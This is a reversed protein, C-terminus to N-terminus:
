KKSSMLASKSYVEACAGAGVGFGLANLPPTPARGERRWQLEQSHFAQAPFSCLCLLDALTVSCLRQFVPMREPSAAMGRRQSILPNRPTGPPQAQKNTNQCDVSNCHVVDQLSQM